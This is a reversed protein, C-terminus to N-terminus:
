PVEATRNQNGPPLPVLLVWAFLSGQSGQRDHSSRDSPQQKAPGARAAPGAPTLKRTGLRPLCDATCFRPFLPVRARAASAPSKPLLGLRRCVDGYKHKGPWTEQKPTQFFLGADRTSYISLKPMPKGREHFKRTGEWVSELM